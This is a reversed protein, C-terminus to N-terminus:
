SLVFNISKELKAEILFVIEETESWKVNTM